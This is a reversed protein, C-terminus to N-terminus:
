RRIVNAGGDNLDHAIVLDLLAPFISQKSHTFPVNQVEIDIYHSAPMTLSQWKSLRAAHVDPTVQATRMMSEHM